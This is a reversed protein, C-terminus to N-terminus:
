REGASRLLSTVTRKALAVSSNWSTVDPYVQASTCLYVRGPILEIPPKTRNYGLTYIPEVFPTRFVFTDRIDTQAVRWSLKLFAAVYRERISDPDEEFLPDSRHVYNLLYVLHNGGTDAIDIVKTSEVIGDFPANEDAVVQWYHPSASRRLVCVVNVVGQYEIASAAGRLPLALADGEAISALVPLPASCIVADFDSTRGDVRLRPRGDQGLMVREVSANTHLRVGSERLTRVILETLGSYGGRFYGKVEKRTGKERNFRSWYWLAPVQDYAEGFKLILLPRWFSEFARHGSIRSLWESVSVDDLRDPRAVYTAYLASLGLRIRDRIPVAGFRLLDIAGNLPYLNGAHLFGLSAERWYVREAAGLTDVLSLLADDNPLMVHYFREFRHGEFDFFTGLGGFRDSSEFLTVEFGSDVLFHASALGAIGGGLVAVRGRSMTVPTSAVPRAHVSRDERGSTDYGQEARRM